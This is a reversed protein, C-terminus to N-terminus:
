VSRGQPKLNICLAGRVNQINCHGGRLNSLIDKWGWCGQRMVFIVLIGGSDRERMGRSEREEGEREGGERM